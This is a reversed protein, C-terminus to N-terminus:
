ELSTVPFSVLPINIKKGDESNLILLYPVSGIMILDHVPDSDSFSFQYKSYLGSDYPVSMSPFYHSSVLRFPKLFWERGLTHILCRSTEIYYNDNEKVVINQSLCDILKPNGRILSDLGKKDLKLELNQLTRKCLLKGDTSYIVIHYPSAVIKSLGIILGPKKLYVINTLPITPVNFKYKNHEEFILRSYQNLSDNFIEELTDSIMKNEVMSSVIHYHIVRYDDGYSELTDVFVNPLVKHMLRFSDSSPI